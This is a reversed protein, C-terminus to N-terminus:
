LVKHGRETFHQQVLYVEDENCVSSVSRLSSTRMEVATGAVNVAQSQTSQQKSYLSQSSSSKMLTSLFVSLGVPPYNVNVWSYKVVFLSCSSTCLHNVNTMLSM